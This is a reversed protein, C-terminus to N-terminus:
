TVAAEKLMRDLENNDSRGKMRGKIIQGVLLTTIYVLFLYTVTRV